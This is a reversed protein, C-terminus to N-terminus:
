WGTVALKIHVAYPDSLVNKCFQAVASKVDPLVL